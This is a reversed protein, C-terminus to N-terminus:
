VWQSIWKSTCQLLIWGSMQENHQTRVNGTSSSVQTPQDVILLNGSRNWGWENKRVVGESDIWCPGVEQFLGIMSSSGPGGNIWVSLPAKEPNVNSAEFFWFFIHEDPAVDAYGSFSRVNPDLNCVGLPVEKYRVSINLHGYAQILDQPPPVFQATVLHAFLLLLPFFVM